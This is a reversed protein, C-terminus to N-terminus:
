ERLLEPWHEQAAQMHQARNKEWRAQVEPSHLMYLVGDRIEFATPDGSVLYGVSVGYSCYGGFRPAYARPNAEFLLQHAQSAFLWTVGKWMVSYSVDGRLPQDARFYSVPDYGGMAYGMEQYFIPHSLPRPKAAALAPTLALATAVM